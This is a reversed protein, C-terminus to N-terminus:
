PTEAEAAGLPLAVTFGLPDALALVAALGRGPDLVRGGAGAGEDAFGAGFYLSPVKAPGATCSFYPLMVTVTTTEPPTMVLAEAVQEHLPSECSMLVRANLPLEPRLPSLRM